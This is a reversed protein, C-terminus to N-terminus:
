PPTARARVGDLGDRPRRPGVRRGAGLALDRGPSRRRVVAGFDCLPRRVRLASVSRCCSFSSASDSPGRSRSMITPKASNRFARRAARPKACWWSCMSCSRALAPAGARTSSPRPRRRSSTLGPARPQASASASDAGSARRARRRRRAAPRAACATTSRTATRKKAGSVPPAACGRKTSSRVSAKSARRSAIAAPVAPDAVAVLLAVHAVASSCSTASCISALRASLSMASEGASLRGASSSTGRRRAALDAGRQELAESPARADVVGRLASCSSAASTSASSCRPPARRTTGRGRRSARQEVRAVLLEAVHEARRRVRVAALGELLTRSASAASTRRRARARRRPPTGGPARADRRSPRRSASSARSRTPSALGDDSRSARAAAGEPLALSHDGGEVAFLRTGARRAGRRVARARRAHRLRRAVGPRVADAGARTPLHATRLQTPSARRICRTASCCSARSTWARGRAAVQTAIRGGMSKGGIFLRGRPGARGCPTSRRAGPRRSCTTGTPRAGGTRAHLPLQVDRRRRGARRDGRAMAVMWPHTQPAGAGHALVLTADAGEATRRTSAAGDDREGVEFSFREASVHITCRRTMLASLRLTTRAASAPLTAM